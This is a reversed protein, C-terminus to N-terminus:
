PLRQGSRARHSGRRLAVAITATLIALAGLGVPLWGFSSSTDGPGAHGDDEQRNITGPVDLTTPTISSAVMTSTPSDTTSPVSTTSPSSTSTTTPPPLTRGFFAFVADTHFEFEAPDVTQAIQSVLDDLVVDGSQLEVGRGALFTRMLEIGTRGRGASDDAFDSLCNAGNCPMPETRVERGNLFVRRIVVEYGDGDDDAAIVLETATSATTSPPPSPTGPPRTTAPPATSPPTDWACAVENFQMQGDDNLDNWSGSSVHTGPPCPGQEDARVGGAEFTVAGLSLMSALLWACRRDSFRGAGPTPLNVGDDKV